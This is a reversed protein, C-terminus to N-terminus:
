FFIFNYYMFKLIKYLSFLKDFVYNEKKMITLILTKISKKSLKIRNIKIKLIKM